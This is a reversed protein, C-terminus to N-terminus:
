NERLPTFPVGLKDYVIRMLDEMYRTMRMGKRYCLYFHREYNNELIPHCQIYDRGGPMKEAFVKPILMVADSYATVLKAAEMNATELLVDPSMLNREFLRDQITRISHGPNMCVFQEEKADTIHIPTGDEFRQALDTSRAAMLVVEEHEILMYNLKHPAKSTTILAMDCQGDITKRELTASGHELLEIKVLPYQSKFEPIVSPLLQLGRQMSIGLRITGRIEKNTKKIEAQLNRQIDVMQQAAEVYKQGAFTLSIPDTGRDFIEAGLDREILKVTQSLAPQTVYLKKSAATISGEQVITLVYQIHKANM